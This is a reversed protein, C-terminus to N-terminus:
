KIKLHNNEVLMAGPVDIGNQIDEKIKKKDPVVEIKSHQYKTPLAAFDTIKTEVSKTLQLTRTEGEIKDLHLRQMNSIIYNDLNEKARKKTKKLATLREIEKDIANLKDDFMQKIYSCSIAKENFDKSLVMFREQLVPDLEGNEDYSDPDELFNALEIMEDTIKYLSPLKNM